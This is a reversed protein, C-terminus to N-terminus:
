LPQVSEQVASGKYNGDLPLTSEILSTTSSVQSAASYNANGSQNFYVVCGAGPSTMTVTGTTISCGGSVTIAVTLGSTATAAVPFTASYAASAPAATTVSISQSAQAITLSRTVQAAVLYNTDSAANAALTCTGAAVKTVTTGSVTCVGTTTSSYTVSSSSTTTAVPSIAFTGGASYTQSAQAGFTITQSAKAITVNKTVQSAVLYNTDTAANAAITCTGATVKTVTTGSVTCVGPTTSSYVISSTSPTTAVPSIAFTGGASYTQGAQAGFTITQTAKAITVNQTVQAAVLYNTDTAANAAITCTGATVKTVTTGSVTCVGPTTSSYVISSTSPTTAVPSISFTGGASYTQGAQAGFTITQTGKSIVVNQTVQAAVLYNTDTAANAAITCTGATVKTVTTGSVTCVGPTTSSYVIPSTSPTTAVPSISFTGGASYTQGAQAGFTITQTAKAITVNQTVQAAVLYNTDTAANAAITCTGATVKTVTTGSVTCVGPTTSSYVISSTSPTTAVPSISFTGGASYTQGAQAGFTITQTAKAITVNQTVQAAVLYNTDTAANAAITCTGATVKTVTTGSVTCVGPTTSSYVISSTSPTTAVPSISFTGGASYTQGAQAGFTITQTAKAITVNQTVQAAVIYTSNGGQNAAITCTGASVKTVTTGSVTCVGPTTSTYTVALASSATAAPSIAFTGGASYTQGAQAGFSISQYTRVSTLQYPSLNPSPWYSGNGVQSAVVYCSGVATFTVVGGSVSCYAEYGPYVSFTVPLGSTATATPSYTAGGVYASGTMSSSTFSVTQNNKVTTLQYHTNAATANYNATAAANGVVWCSGATLFTVVGGSVSCVSEYGPYISYTVAVGSTSTATPSYTAGGPSAATPPTSTFSVTQTGKAITISFAQVDNGVMNNAQINGTFTGAVTPTGSIYGSDGDISLGTPLAGTYVRFAQPTANWYCNNSDDLTTALNTCSLDEKRKSARGMGPNGVLNPDGTAVITKGYSVGVTGAPPASSTIVPATGSGTAVETAIATVTAASLTATMDGLSIMYDLYNPNKAIRIPYATLADGVTYVANNPADPLTSATYGHCADCADSVYTAHVPAALVAGMIWGCFALRKLKFNM